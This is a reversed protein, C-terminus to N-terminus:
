NPQHAAVLHAAGWPGGYWFRWGLAQRQVGTMRLTRLEREYERAHRFDVVM